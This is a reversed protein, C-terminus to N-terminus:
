ATVIALTWLVSIDKASSPLTCACPPPANSGVSVYKLDYYLSFELEKAVTVTAPHLVCSHQFGYHKTHHLATAGFPLGHRSHVHSIVSQHLSSRCVSLHFAVSRASHCLTTLCAISVLPHGRGHLWLLLFYAPSLRHITFLHLYLTGAELDLFLSVAPDTPPFQPQPVLLNGRAASSRTVYSWTRLRSYSVM